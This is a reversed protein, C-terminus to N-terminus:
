VVSPMVLSHLPSSPLTIVESPHAAAGYRGSEHWARSAGVGGEGKSAPQAVVLEAAENFIAFAGVCGLANGLQALPEPAAGDGRELAGGCRLAWERAPGRQCGGGGKGRARLKPALWSQPM